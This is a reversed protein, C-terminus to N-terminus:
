TITPPQQNSQTLQAVIDGDTTAAMALNDLASSINVVSNAGYFNAKLTNVQQQEKLDQNEEAFYPKFLAWTKAIKCADNYHGSICVAHYAAELIQEPRFPIKGDDARKFFIDIMQTTAQNM